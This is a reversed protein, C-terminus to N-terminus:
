FSYSLWVWAKQVDSYASGDADFDAYKLGVTLDEGVKRTVSLDIESGYDDGGENAQFDHWVALLQAGWVESGVSVALDELGDDPTNLFVDAWGNWKHLTALPTTFRDGTDGSGELVEYMVKCQVPGFKPGLEGRYYNASVDNPNDNSDDQTAFEAGWALDVKGLEAVGALSAGFTNTSNTDASDYDLLYAYATLDGFSGLARKANFLHSNMRQDGAFPNDAGSSLHKKGEDGFIRNVNSLYGYFLNWGEFRESTTSFADFTQQNQRWGVDGVFRQNGIVIRQRGAVLATDEFGTYRLYSQNVEAGDPDAVIPRSTNGNTTSNYPDGGIPAVDEFELLAAFGKYEATEYGLVTRLTVANADKSFGDQDVYEYRSRLKVWGHGGTLAERLTAYDAPVPPGLRLAETSADVEPDGPDAVVVPALLGLLVACAPIRTKM